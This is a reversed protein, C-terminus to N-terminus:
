VVCVLLRLESATSEIVSSRRPFIQIAVQAPPTLRNSGAVPRKVGNVGFFLPM